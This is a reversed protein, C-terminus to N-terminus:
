DGGPLAYGRIQEEPPQPPEFRANCGDSVVRQCFAEDFSDATVIAEGLVCAAHSATNAGQGTVPDLLVHAAGLAVAFRANSM